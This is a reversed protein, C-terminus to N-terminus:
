SFAGTKGTGTQALAILDKTSELIFPITKEQIPSPETFGLEELGKIMEDNLGLKQFEKM